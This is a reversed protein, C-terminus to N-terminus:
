RTKTLKAGWGSYPLTPSIVNFLWNYVFQFWGINRFCHRSISTSWWGNARHVGILMWRGWLHRFLCNMKQQICLLFLSYVHWWLRIPLLVNLKECTPVKALSCYYYRCSWDHQGCTKVMCTFIPRGNVVSICEAMLSKWGSFIKWNKITIIPFPLCIENFHINDSLVFTCVAKKRPSAVNCINTSERSPGFYIWTWKQRETHSDM